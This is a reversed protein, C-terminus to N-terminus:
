YTKSVSCCLQVLFHSVHQINENEKIMASLRNNNLVTYQISISMSVFICLVYIEILFLMVFKSLVLIVILKFNTM